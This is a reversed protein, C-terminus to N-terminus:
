KIDTDKGQDEKKPFLLKKQNSFLIKNICEYQSKKKSQILLFSANGQHFSNLLM